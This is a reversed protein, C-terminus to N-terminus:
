HGGGGLAGAEAAAGRVLPQQGRVKRGGEELVAADRRGLGLGGLGRPTYRESGALMNPLHDVPVVKAKSRGLVDIWGGMVFEVGQGQLSGLLEAHAPDIDNVTDV